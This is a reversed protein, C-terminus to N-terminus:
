RKETEQYLKRTKARCNAIGNPNRYVRRGVAYFDMSIEVVGRGFFCNRCVRSEHHRRTQAPKGPIAWIATNVSSSVTSHSRCDTSLIGKRIIAPGMAPFFFPFESKERQHRVSVFSLFPILRKVHRDNYIPEVRDPSKQTARGIFIGWIIHKGVPRYHRHQWGHAFLHIVNTLGLHM